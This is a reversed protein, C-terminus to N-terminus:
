GVLGHRRLEEVVDYAAGFPVDCAKAIDAISQTGDIRDMISFLRRNGKPNTYPDVFVGYRSCFAEGKFKNVPVVNQELNDIMRLVLEVSGKLSRSSCTSPDDHNSHYFRYPWNPDDPPLVRSLSLMPIRVGPGNFQREDNGIVARYAGTWGSPDCEALALSFCADLETAGHFSLQLAHPNELGLMELFLGGKIKSQFAENQSLYAVGGITEPLILYRYTYRLNKRKLLQRAVEMGVVVGSMDDNVQAPHDLHSCLVITEDRTGPIVVEGIKLTSYSFSTKIVVRYREDRLTDKQVQSCCLGWEREYYMLIFPIAERVRPHVHLHRFLEERTVVGEFPLSYNVVHLPHDAASFVRKGDLTELYAEHCTWKEPIIWTWCETGTPYELVKIPLQTGLARLADDFGDSLLHRPLQWLAEIMQEMSAEPPMAVDVRRSGIREDEAQVPDCAPGRATFWRDKVLEAWTLDFFDRCRVALVEGRGLPAARCVGTARAKAELRRGDPYGNDALIRVNYVWGQKREVGGQRIVGTFLKKFRFPVRAIEEVHHRFTMEELPAGIACIKGGAELLRAHVSGPGFCTEPLNSLLAGARPGLAAVSLIPDRSRVVGPQRRFFELFPHFPSWPGEDAATTELDFVEQRCFSFSYTPLLITGTPGVAERLAELLLACTQEVTSCGDPRGIADLGVHFFVSDGLDIGVERLARALEKRDFRAKPAISNNV